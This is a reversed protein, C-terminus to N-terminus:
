QLKDVFGRVVPWLGKDWLDGHGAGEIVHIAKEGTAHDFLDRGQSIPVVSDGTGHVILLPESIRGVRDRSRFQDKMLLNVPLWPYQESALDVAASLPAELVVAMPDREAAVPVAVGTGISEGYVVIRDARESLWDYALVGDSIFAAESPEGGSGAYGRYSPAMLGYGGSLIRAFRDSRGSINGGNGHLYLFTPRGDAARAYWAKLPTGDSATLDLVEVGSLGKDEPAALAGSPKFVYSRQYAYLYAAAALYAVAITMLALRIRARIKRFPKM